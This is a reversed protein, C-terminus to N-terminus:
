NWWRQPVFWGDAPQASPAPAAAPPATPAPAAAARPADFLALQTAERVPQNHAIRLRDWDEPRLRDLYLDIAAALAYVRCDLADNRCGARKVWELRDPQGPRSANILHEGTLQTFFNRDHGTSFHWYGPAAATATDPAAARLHAYVRSKLQNTGLATVACGKTIKKGGWTVDVWSPLGIPPAMRNSSGKIAKVNPHHRAFNYVAHSSYGADIMVEDVYRSAGRADTLPRRIVEALKLFVGSGATDGEIIGTDLGWAEGGEGWGVIEYQLYGGGLGQVDVGMTILLAGDPVRGLPYDERRALLLDIDPAEGQEEWPLGLVQQHFAKLALPSDKSRQWQAAWDGITKFLSYLQSIDFGPQRGDPGRECWRAIEAADTLVPPPVEGTDADPYCRIWRAQGGAADDRLALQREYDSWGAGCGGCRYTLADLDLAEWRLVQLAGCRPCCAYYRRHDTREELEKSIRCFGVVGPTSGMYVKRGFKAYADTRAIAQTVPDGRSGAEEPYESVEDLALRRISLMQLGTSSMAPSVILFGGPFRKHTTTSGKADRSKQEAIRDALIPSAGIAPALKTKEFMRVNEITPQVIGMPCPSVHATFGAWNILVDTAGIQAGKRVVVLWAPSSDSLERMIERLYPAAHTSWPGPRSSTESTHVRYRDAWEDITLVPDPTLGAVFAGIVVGRASTGPNDLPMTSLPM